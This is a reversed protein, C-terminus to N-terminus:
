ETTAANSGFSSSALRFASEGNALSIRCNTSPVSSSLFSSNLSMGPITSPDQSTWFATPFVGAMRPLFIRM